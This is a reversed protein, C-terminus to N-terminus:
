GKLDFRDRLHAVLRQALDAKDTPPEAILTQEPGEASILTLGEASADPGFNAPSNLCILDCRKRALKGRAHEIPNQVELAFGVLIQEPAPRRRQGMEFLIDPTPQLQLTIPADKADPTTAKKLKGTARAVPRYDAVAAAAIFMRCAAFRAEVADFMQQASVVDVVSLNAMAPPAISTPGLVLTTPVGAGAFAMAIEIGMRGTSLNSLFRVDDIFERTPGATVLIM